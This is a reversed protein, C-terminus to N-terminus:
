AGKGDIARGKERRDSHCPKAVVVDISHPRSGNRLRKLAIRAKRRQRLASKPKTKAKQVYM